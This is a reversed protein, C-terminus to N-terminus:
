KVETNNFNGLMYVSKYCVSKIRNDNLFTQLENEKRKWEAVLKKQQELDAVSEPEFRLAETIAKDLEKAM